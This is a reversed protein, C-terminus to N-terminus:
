RVDGVLQSGFHANSAAPLRTADLMTWLCIGFVFAVFGSVVAGAAFGIEMREGDHQAPQEAVQQIPVMAAAKEFSFSGGKM